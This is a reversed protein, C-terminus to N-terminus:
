PIALIDALSEGTEEGWQSRPALRQGSGNYDAGCRECTCTFGDLTVAAGCDCRGVAPTTYRTTYTRVGGPHTGNTGARCEALNARAEPCLGAEDVVGHEDCPFCCGWTGTYGDYWFCLDHHVAEHHERHTLIKM